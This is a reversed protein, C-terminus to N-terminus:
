PWGALKHNSICPGSRDLTAEFELRRCVLWFFLRLLEFILGGCIIFALLGIITYSGSFGFSPCPVKFMGIWLKSVPPNFKQNKQKVLSDPKGRKSSEQKAYRENARRQQPTQQAQTSDSHPPVSLHEILLQKNVMLRFVTPFSQLNVPYISQATKKQLHSFFWLSFFWM